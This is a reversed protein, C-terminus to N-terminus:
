HTWFVLFKKKKKKILSIVHIIFHLNITKNQPEVLFFFFDKEYLRNVFKKFDRRQLKKKFNKKLNYPTRFTSVIKKEEGGKVLPHFQLFIEYKEKDIYITPKM